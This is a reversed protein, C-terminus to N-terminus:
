RVALLAEPFFLYNLAFACLIHVYVVFIYYKSFIYILYFIANVYYFIWCGIWTNMCLHMAYIVSVKFELLNGCTDKHSWVETNSLMTSLKQFSSIDVEQGQATTSLILDGWTLFRYTKGASSYLERYLETYLLSLAARPLLDASLLCIQLHWWDNRHSATLRSGSVKM